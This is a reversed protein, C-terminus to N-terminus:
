EEFTLGTNIFRIINAALDSTNWADPKHNPNSLLKAVIKKRLRKDKWNQIKILINM